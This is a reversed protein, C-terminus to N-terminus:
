GDQSEETSATDFPDRGTKVEADPAAPPGDGGPTNNVSLVSWIKGRREIVNFCGTEQPLAGVDELRADLAPLLLRNVVDHSVVAAIGGPVRRAVDTVADLARALVEPEPEIGPAADVSGWRAVLAEPSNGAWPGYDRDVLRPDIELELGASAAIAAATEVARKLPSSMVLQLEMRGVVDGLRKAQLIGAADLEPDLRGRLVGEANLRTRGHRVLYIRSTATMARPALHRDPRSSRALRM